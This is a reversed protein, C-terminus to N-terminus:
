LGEFNALFDRPGRLTYYPYAVHGMGAGAGAGYAGGEVGAIPGGCAGSGCEGGCGAKGCGGTWGKACLGPVCCCGVGTTLLGAAVVLGLLMRKM